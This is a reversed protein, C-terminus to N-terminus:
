KSAKWKCGGSAIKTSFTLVIFSLFYVGGGLLGVMILRLIVNQFESVFFVKLVFITGAMLLTSLLPIFVPKLQQYGNIGLIKNMLFIGVPITIVVRVTSWSVMTETLSYNKTLLVTIVSLTASLASLLMFRKSEGVAKMAIGVFMRSYMVAYMIAIVQIVPVANVWGDGLMVPVWETCTIAMGVFAPMSITNFIKTTRSFINKLKSLDDQVQSFLPLAMRSVVTNLVNLLADTIRTAMNYLGLAYTGHFTAILLSFVRSLVSWLINEAMVYVGFSFLEKFILPNFTLRKPLDKRTAIFLLVMSTLSQAFNGYVVSWVGHGSLALPVTVLFFIVRSLLTRKTFASMKLDRLLLATPLLSLLTFVVGFIEFIFIYSVIREDIYIWLFVLVVVSIILALACFLISAVFATEKIDQTLDKKQIISETLGFSFILSILGAIVQAMAINGYDAPHLIRALYVISILSLLVSSIAEIGSWIAAIRINKKSFM